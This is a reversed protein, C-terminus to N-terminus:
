RAANLLRDVEDALRSAGKLDALSLAAERMAGRRADDGMLDTIVRELARANLINEKIVFAAGNKELYRANETQHAGAHPYPVLISPVGFAALEFVSSAGARSVALDAASYALEIKDFFGFVRNSVGLNGYEWTLFDRDHGGSMHLVQIKAREAADMINLAELFTHNIRRAGQSGGIVLVTFRNMDFSFHKLAAERDLPKLSPRLPCGCVVTRRWRRRETEKFSLAVTDALCGLLRNAKGPMVNQEHILIPRKMISAALIPPGSIYAGFSVVVDPREAAMLAASKAGGYILRGLFSVFQPSFRSRLAVMPLTYCTFAREAFLRKAMDNNTTIFSISLGENHRRKLEEAVSLAPNIHGASGGCVIMVKKTRDIRRSMM